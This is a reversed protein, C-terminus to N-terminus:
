ATVSKVYGDNYQSAYKVNKGLQHRTTIQHRGARASTIQRNEGVSKQATARAQKESVPRDTLVWIGHDFTCTFPLYFTPAYRERTTFTWAHRNAIENHM